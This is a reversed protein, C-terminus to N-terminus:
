DFIVSIVAVSVHLVVVGTKIDIGQLTFHIRCCRFMCPTRRVNGGGHLQFKCFVPLQDVAFMQIIFFRDSYLHFVVTFIQVFDARLDAKHSVGLIFNYLQFDQDTDIRKFVIRRCDFPDRGCPM